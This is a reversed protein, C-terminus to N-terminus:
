VDAIYNFTLSSFEAYGADPTFTNPIAQWVGGVKREVTQLFVKRKSVGFANQMDDVFAANSFEGNFDLNFSYNNAADEVPKGGLGDLRNGTADLLLPDYYVTITARIEDAAKNYYLIPVGADKIDEMYAKFAIEVANILQVIDDGSKGAIKMLLVRKGDVTTESVACYKVVKSDDIQQQTYGTNDFKDTDALLPFGYQFALAKSKYWGRTHPVESALISNILALFSDWLKEVTWVTFAMVQFLIKWVAVNSINDLMDLMNQDQADTALRKAEDVMENFIETRTRAMNNFKLTTKLRGFTLARKM